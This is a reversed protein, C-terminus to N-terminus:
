WCNSAIKVMYEDGTSEKENANVSKKEITGHTHTQTNINTHKKKIKKKM